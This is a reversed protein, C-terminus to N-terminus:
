AMVATEGLLGIKYSCIILEERSKVHLKEFLLRKYSNIMTQNLNLVSGIEKISLNTCFHRLVNLEQESLLLDEEDNGNSPSKQLFHGTYHVNLIAKHVTKPDAYKSLIGNAGIYSAKRANYPHNSTAFLIVKLDPALRRIENLQYLTKPDHLRMDFFCLDMTHHNILFEKLIQIDHGELLVELGDHIRVFSSLGSRFIADSIIIGVQISKKSNSDMQEM